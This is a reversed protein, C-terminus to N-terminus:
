CQCTLRRNWDIELSHFLNMKFIQQYNTLYINYHNFLNIIMLYVFLIFDRKDINNCM